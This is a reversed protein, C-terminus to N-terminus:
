PPRTKDIEWSGAAAAIDTETVTTRWRRYRTVATSDPAITEATAEQVSRGGPADVVGRAYESPVWRGDRGTPEGSAAASYEQLLTAEGASISALNRTM